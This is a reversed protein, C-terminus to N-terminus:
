RNCAPLSRGKQANPRRAPEDATKSSITLDEFGHLWASLIDAFKTSGLPEGRLRQYDDACWNVNGEILVPGHETFAVDWGVFVFDPCAQHAVKTHRLVADWDPLVRIEDSNSDPRRIWRREVVLERPAWTLQGSTLDILAIRRARIRKPEEFDFICIHGFIPIVEGDTALGTVLRATALYADAGLRFESHNSLAEQVLLTQNETRARNALYGDLDEPRLRYGRDSEFVAGRWRFREAGTSGVGIRPKVFLDRKPPQDSDFELLLGTPSFAALIEPSPLAHTKCLAHFALKDDIPNPRSQRNLLKFLRPGERTYLYNDINAKRYPEWLAYAYYEGPQVNHRMAAWIAGPLHRTPVAESGNYYRIQWLQVIVAPPWVIATFVKAVARHLRSRDRGFQRRAIRRAAVMAPMGPPRAPWFWPFGVLCRSHFLDSWGARFAHLTEAIGKLTM